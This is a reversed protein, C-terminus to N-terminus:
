TEDEEPADINIRTSEPVYGGEPYERISAPQEYESADYASSPEEYNHGDYASSPEEYNPAEYASSPEEYNPAEPEPIAIAMSTELAGRAVPQAAADINVVNVLGCAPCRVRPFLGLIDDLSIEGLHTQCAACIGADM